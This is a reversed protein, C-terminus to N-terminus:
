RKEGGNPADPEANPQKKGGACYHCHSDGAINMTVLTHHISDYLAFNVQEGYGTLWSLLLELGVAAAVANSTAFSV